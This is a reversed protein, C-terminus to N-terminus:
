IVALADLDMLMFATLLGLAVMAVFFYAWRHAYRVRWFRRLSFVISVMALVNIVLLIPIAVDTAVGIFPLVFPLVAYQLVCRIGSFMLSLGLANEGTREQETPPTVTEPDIFLIREMM